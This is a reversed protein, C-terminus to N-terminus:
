KIKWFIKKIIKLCEEEYGMVKAEKLAEIAKNVYTDSTSKILEKVLKEDEKNKSKNNYSEIRRSVVKDGLEKIEQIDNSIEMYKIWNLYEEIAEDIIKNHLNMREIRLAKNVDDIKSIEDINKLIVRKNDRLKEDIDRPMALDYCYLKKGEAKIDSTNIIIKKSSTCSILGDIEDLYKNIHSINIIKITTNELFVYKNIDRVAIIISLDKNKHLYKLILRGIKGYGILMVNKLNNRYIDKAVISGVSVPIEYLKAEKRFKKGCSIANLFLRGLEKSATGERFSLYYAEKIQGLIQDEGMLKSHYGCGVKFIHKITNKGEKLFTYQILDEKWNLKKFLEKIIEDNCFSHNFYIETRNCTNLIIIEKFELALSRILEIKNEITFKERIDIPINKKIGLLFLM